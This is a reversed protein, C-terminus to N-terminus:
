VQGAAPADGTTEPPVVGAPNKEGRILVIGMVVIGATIFMDAINFIGTRLGGVGVNLFDIVYNFRVRDILNGIGGAVVMLLPLFNWKTIERATLLYVALGILVLGNVVTLILFRVEDPMNSLLSLFAGDNLAYQVRFTDGLWSIPERETHLLYTSAYVKSAQDLVVAVVTMALFWVVRTRRSLSNVPAASSGTGPRNVIVIRFFVLRVGVLQWPFLVEAYM